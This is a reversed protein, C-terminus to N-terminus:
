TFIGTLINLKICSCNSMLCLGTFDSVRNRNIGSIPREIDEEFLFIYIFTEIKEENAGNLCM